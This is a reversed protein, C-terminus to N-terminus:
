RGSGGRIGKSAHSPMEEHCTLGPIDKIPRGSVTWPEGGSQSQAGSAPKRWPISEADERRGRRPNRSQFEAIHEELDTKGTFKTFCPLKMVVPM